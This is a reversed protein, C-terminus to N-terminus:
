LPGTDRAGVLFLEHEPLVRRLRRPTLSRLPMGPLWRYDRNTWAGAASSVSVLIVAELIASLVLSVLFYIWAEEASVRTGLVDSLTTAIEAAGILRAALLAGIASGLVYGPAAVAGSILGSLAGQRGAVAARRGCSFGFFGVVLIGVLSGPLSVLFGVVGGIGGWIMGARIAGGREEREEM